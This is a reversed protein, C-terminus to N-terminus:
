RHRACSCEDMASPLVERGSGLRLLVGANQADRGLDLVAFIAAFLQLALLFVEGPEPGPVFLGLVKSAARLEVAGAPIIRM